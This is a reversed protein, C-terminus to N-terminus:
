KDEKEIPEESWDYDCVYCKVSLADDHHDYKVFFKEIGQNLSSCGCKKCKFDKM